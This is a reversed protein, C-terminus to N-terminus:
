VRFNKFSLAKQDLNTLTSLRKVLDQRTFLLSLEYVYNNYFQVAPNVHKDSKNMLFNILSKILM